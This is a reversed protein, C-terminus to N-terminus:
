LLTRLSCLHERQQEKTRLFFIQLCIQENTQMKAVKKLLFKREILFNKELLFNGCYSIKKRILHVKQSCASSIAFMQENTQLFKNKQPRVFLHEGIQKAFLSRVFTRQACQHIINSIKISDM